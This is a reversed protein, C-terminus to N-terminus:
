NGTIHKFLHPDEISRVKAPVDSVSLPKGILYGQAMTCGLAQLERLQEPQEIGEAVVDAGLASSMAIITRVIARTEANDIGAVFARDVKIRQVPFKQLLSLSSYGTGFDDIAVRVGISNLRRLSALAQAPETIMVSETVELWLLDASIGSTALADNVVNVFQPDHLQRASVNVSMTTTPRCVGSDIWERLQSLADVLAWSGLPVITGTEEAVPIFDGPSVTGAEGRDWRMLAEFGTVIGLNIDVIPQHLLHLERRELARYLATEIDLRQTVKELMSDDFLAICNRGANKARYMATDANRLLADPTLPLDRPTISVGISASVFMDGHALSLPARLSDLIGEALMVAQTSSETGAHLVGFEDGSLRAVVAEVPVAVNIRRAVESLVEDGMAHGLSDNINKFRDVDIFLVTPQTNTRWTDLLAEEISHLLSTRNPLGTLPDTLSEFLLTDQVRANERVSQIVRAMVASALVLISGARVSRDLTNHANTIALLFLPGILAATTTTLRILLPKTRRVLTSVHLESITPHLLAATELFLAALFPARQAGASIHHPHSSHIAFLLYGAIAALPALISLTSAVTRRSDTFSLNAVLFVILCTLALGVARVSSTLSSQAHQRLVPELLLVWTAIWGAMAVIAGDILSARADSSLRRRTVSILGASLCVLALVFLSDALSQHGTNHAAVVLAGAFSVTSTWATTWVTVSPRTTFASVALTLIFIAVGIVPLRPLLDPNHGYVMAVTIGVLTVTWSAGALAKRM